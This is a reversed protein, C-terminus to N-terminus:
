ISVKPKYNKPPAIYVAPNMEIYLPESDVGEESSPSHRGDGEVNIYFSLDLHLTYVYMIINHNHPSLFKHTHICLM